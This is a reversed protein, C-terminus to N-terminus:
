FYKTTAKAVSEELPMGNLKTQWTAYEDVFVSVGYPNGGEKPNRTIEGRAGGKSGAQADRSTDWIDKRLQGTVRHSADVVYDQPRTATADQAPM